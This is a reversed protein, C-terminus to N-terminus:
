KLPEPAPGEDPNAEPKPEDSKKETLLEGRNKLVSDLTWGSVLFTWKEFSKETALKEVLMKQHDAFEKDLRAKDEPKEDAGPAREKPLDAAVRLTVAQNDDKKAGVTLTYTIGDFTQLVVTVPKDLGLEEPKADMVVDNFTPSSLAYGFGSTKSADLTEGPNAGALVWDSGTENTRSVSWSNTADTHSVSIARVKEAKFFDKNLWQSPNPALSALADNVVYATDKVDGLMIWRGTPIGGAEGGFQAARADEGMQTKGLLLSALMKGGAERFEVRTATNSGPGPPLLELRDLQSAVVQETRMPKLERLKLIVSSIDSFNAPYDGREKVSWIENKKELTMINTGNQIVIQALTEGVPLQALIKEGAANGGKWSEGQKRHMVLGGVGVAVVLIILLLIQNTKM